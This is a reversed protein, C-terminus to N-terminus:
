LIELATNRGSAQSMAAYTEANHKARFADLASEFLAAAKPAEAALEALTM